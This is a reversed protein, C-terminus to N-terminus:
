LVFISVLVSEWGTCYHMSICYCMRKNNLYEEYVFLCLIGTNKINLYARKNCVTFAVKISNFSISQNIASWDAIILLM